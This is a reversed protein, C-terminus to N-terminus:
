KSGEHNWEEIWEWGNIYFELSVVEKRWEPMFWAGSEEMVLYISDLYSEASLNEFEESVQVPEQVELADNWWQLQKANM